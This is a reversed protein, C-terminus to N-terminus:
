MLNTKFAVLLFTHLNLIIYLQFLCELVTPISCSHFVHIKLSYWLTDWQSLSQLSLNAQPFFLSNVGLFVLHQDSHLHAQSCLLFCDSCPFCSYPRLFSISFRNGTGLLPLPCPSGQPPQTHLFPFPLVLLHTPVFSFLVHAAPSLSSPSTTSIPCCARSQTHLRLMSCLSETGHKSVSDPQEPCCEAEETWSARMEKGVTNQGVLQADKMQQLLPHVLTRCSVTVKTRYCTYDKCQSKFGWHPSFMCNHWSLTIDQHMHSPPFYM